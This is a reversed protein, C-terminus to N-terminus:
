PAEGERVSQPLNSLTWTFERVISETLDAKWEAPLVEWTYTEIEWYSSFAKEELLAFTDLITQQTTSFAGCSDTCVPVHFHVRWEQAHEGLHELAEPLDRYRTLSGDANQQIVQHLYTSEVYPALVKPIADRALGEAKEGHALPVQLASSVQVKGIRIGMAEMKGVFARPTEYELALHCTDLCVGIHRLLFRRAQNESVGAADRLAAAGSLLLYERFFACVEDATELLGDPEPELDLHILKGTEREIEMLTRTVRVLQKVSARFVSERSEVGSEAAVGTSGCSRLDGSCSGTQGWPKYSLPSTSISGAPMDEPLLAALIRALRITYDAREPTQWDPAHVLDKVETRHFSGYPFGNLTFVYLGDRSLQEQFAQLRNGVLLEEAALNSLRLGIGFPANPSLHQRLRPGYEALSSQVQDWDHGPHINTCYTLHFQQGIRM